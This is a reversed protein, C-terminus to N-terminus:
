HATQSFCLCFLFMFSFFVSLFQIKHVDNRTQAIGPFFVLIRPMVHTKKSYVQQCFFVIDADILDFELCQDALSPDGALFDKQDLRLCEHVQAPLGDHLNHVKVLLIDFIQDHNIVIDVNRGSRDADAFFATGSRM